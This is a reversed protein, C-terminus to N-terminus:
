CPREAGLGVREPFRDRGGGTKPKHPEYDGILVGM